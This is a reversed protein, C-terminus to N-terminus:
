IEKAVKYSAYVDFLDNSLTNLITYRCDKNAQKWGEVLKPDTKAEDPEAATLTSSVGKVDLL